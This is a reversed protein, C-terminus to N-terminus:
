VLLHTNAVDVFIDGSEEALDEGSSASAFHALVPPFLNAPGDVIELLLVANGQLLFNIFCLALKLTAFHKRLLTRHIRAVVNAFPDLQYFIALLAKAINDGCRSSRTM